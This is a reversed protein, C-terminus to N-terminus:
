HGGAAELAEAEETSMATVHPKAPRGKPLFLGQWGAQISTDLIQRQVDAPQSALVALQKRLTVPDCPWKRKRRHELWQEWEERPLSEHLVPAPVASRIKGEKGNGEMGKSRQITKSREQFPEPVTLSGDYLPIRPDQPKDIRQHKRFNKIHLYKKGGVEYEIMMGVRLLEQILPECDLDDHPLVQAKLQKASRDLGGADDAFNLAGIFLLRANTSCEGVKGDTWFEPKITRIRAM